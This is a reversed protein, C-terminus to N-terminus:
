GRLTVHPSQGYAERYYVAFRSTHLFGWKRAIQAVTTAARNGTILDLHAHHLRVRRLYETPTCDRHKRFMYQLARPTVYVARSIDTLSIDRHANDDIFSIARQLLVPTSDRRDGATPELLATNPFASLVSAAVYRQVAGIVMPNEAVFPDTAVNDRVYAILGALHANAQASVPQLATLRIPAGDDRPGTAAVEDFLTRDLLLQSFRGARVSGSFSLDDRVGAAMVDGPGGTEPSRGPLRQEVAGAEVLCIALKDLPDIEYRFSFGFESRHAAVKGIEASTIRTSTSPAAVASMRIKAYNASLAAEAVGLDDTDVLVSPM